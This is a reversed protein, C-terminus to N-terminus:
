SNDENNSNVSNSIKINNNYYNEIDKRLGKYDIQINSMNYISVSIIHKKRNEKKSQLENMYEIIKEYKNKFNNQIIEYFMLFRKPLIKKNQLELVCYRLNSYKIISNYGEFDVNQETIGPENLLPKNDLIMCLTLLVSKINQCSSWQEGKWTNLISICVKGNRYLNPHFRIKDFTNHFIVKPPSYPYNYPFNFEFLYNGFSFPTEEPGSILAYGITMDNEDHKYYIGQSELTEKYISRVDKLLRQANERPMVKVDDHQITTM